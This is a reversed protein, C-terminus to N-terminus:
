FKLNNTAAIRRRKRQTKANSKSSQGRVPLGQANRIGRYSNIGRLTTMALNSQQRLEVNITIQWQTIFNEFESTIWNRKKLSLSSLTTSRPLGIHQCFQEAWKEGIGHIHIIAQQITQNSPVNIDFIQTM